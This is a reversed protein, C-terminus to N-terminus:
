SKLTQQHGDATRDPWTGIILGHSLRGPGGTAVSCLAVAFVVAERGCGPKRATPRNCLSAFRRV